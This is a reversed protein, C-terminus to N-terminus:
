DFYVVTSKRKEDIARIDVDFGKAKQGNRIRRLKYRDINLSDYEHLFQTLSCYKQDINTDDIKGVVHWKYRTCNVGRM